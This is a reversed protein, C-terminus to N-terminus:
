TRPPRALPSIPEGFAVPVLASWAAPVEGPLPTAPAEALPALHGCGCHSGHQGAAEGAPAENPDGHDGAAIAMAAGPTAAHQDAFAPLGATALGLVLLAVLACRWSGALRASGRVVRGALGRM